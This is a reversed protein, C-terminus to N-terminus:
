KDGKLVKRFWFASAKPYRAQDNDFDVYYLGFRVTYGTAWEFNDLLSWAFYSRIDCGDKIALLVNQLYDHYYNIRTTDNLQQAISLTKATNFEDVGNETIYIPPNNYRDRIWNLLHRIGSPYIWLWPSAAEPGIITGNCYPTFGVGSDNDITQNTHYAYQTSYHNFGIWDYSGKILTKQKKTFKPLRAGLYNRMSLPYDGFIIPDMFWGLYFELGRQAAEKDEKSNTLPFYWM